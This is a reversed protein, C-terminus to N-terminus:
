LDLVLAPTKARSVCVAMCDGSAKVADNLFDDRHDPVGEIVDVVCMGCQGERCSFPVDVDNALLAQLITEDPAVTITRNARALRVEVVRSESPPPLVAAGGFSEWHVREAPWNAAALKKMLDILPLPGCVYVDSDARRERLLLQMEAEVRSAEYGYHFRVRDGWACAGLEEAFAAWAAGRAFYHLEFSHGRAAAERAMGIIPTIGIGGAVLVLHSSSRDVAFANQPASVEVEDGVRLAHVAASGGTSAPERKVAIVYADRDDPGNCLSYARVIERSLRLRIHAGAEFDHLGGSVPLLRLSVIDEAEANVAVVRCSQIEASM